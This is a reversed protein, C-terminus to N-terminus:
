PFPIKTGPYWQDRTIVKEVYDLTKSGKSLLDQIIARDHSSLDPRELLKKFVTIANRISREAMSVEGLHDYYERWGWVGRMRMVFQHSVHHTIPLNKQKRQNATTAERQLRLRHVRAIDIHITHHHTTAGDTHGGHHHTTAVNTQHHTTMADTHSGLRYVQTANMQIMLHSGTGEMM